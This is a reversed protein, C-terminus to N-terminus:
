NSLDDNTMVTMMMVVIKVGPQDRQWRGEEGEGGDADEEGGRALDDAEDEDSDGRYDEEAIGTTVVIRYNGEGWNTSTKSSITMQRPRTLNQWRQLNLNTRNDLKIDPSM